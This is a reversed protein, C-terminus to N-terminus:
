QTVTVTIGPTVALGASNTAQILFLWNGALVPTGSIVGTTPNLTVGPPFMGGIISYTPAPSGSAHFQYSYPTGVTGSPPTAATFVPANAPPTGGNAWISRAQDLGAQATVFPSWGPIIATGQDIGAQITAFAQDMATDAASATTAVGLFLGLLLACLVRKM